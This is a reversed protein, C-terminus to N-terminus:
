VDEIMEWFHGQEVLGIQGSGQPNKIPRQLLGSYIKGASELQVLSLLVKYAPLDLGNKLEILSSTGYIKLYNWVASEIENVMIRVIGIPEMVNLLVLM